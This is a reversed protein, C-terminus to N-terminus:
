PLWPSNKLPLSAPGVPLQKSPVPCVISPFDTESPPKVRSKQDEPLELPIGPGWPSCVLAPQAEGNGARSDSCRKLFPAQSAAKTSIPLTPFANGVGSAGNLGTRNVPINHQNGPSALRRRGCQSSQHRRLTNPFKTCTKPPRTEEGKATEERCDAVPAM